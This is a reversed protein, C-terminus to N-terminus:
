EFLTDLDCSSIDIEGPSEDPYKVTITQHGDQSYGLMVVPSGGVYTLPEIPEWKIPEWEIPESEIPEWVGATCWPADSTVTNGYMDSATITNERARLGTEVYRLWADRVSSTGWTHGLRDSGNVPVESWGRNM